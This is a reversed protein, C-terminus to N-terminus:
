VSDMTQGDRRLTKRQVDKPGHHPQEVELPPLLSSFGRAYFDWALTYASAVMAQYM